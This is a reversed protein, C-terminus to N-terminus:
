ASTTQTVPLRTAHSCCRAKTSLTTLTARQASLGPSASLVALIATTHTLSLGAPQASSHDRPSPGHMRHVYKNRPWKVTIADGRQKVLPDAVADAAKADCPGVLEARDWPACQYSRPQPECVYSHAHAVTATALAAVCALLGAFTRM